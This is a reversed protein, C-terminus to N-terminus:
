GNEGFARVEGDCKDNLSAAIKEGNAESAARLPDDHLHAYRHTTASDSHGLLAGIIPLSAGGSAAISAISHRLDRLRVNDLGAKARKKVWSKPTGVCHGSGSFAPFVFGSNEFRTLESLVEM